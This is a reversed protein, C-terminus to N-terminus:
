CPDWCPGTKSILPEPWYMWPGRALYTFNRIACAGPIGPVNEMGGHVLSGPMGWTVHTVCTGHHMGLDSVLLKKQLWHRPFINGANRACACGPIKLIQYSAWATCKYDIRRECLAHLKFSIWLIHISNRYKMGDPGNRMYHWVHGQGWGPLWPTRKGPLSLHYWM